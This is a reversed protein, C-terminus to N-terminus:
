WGPQELMFPLQHARVHSPTKPPWVAPRGWSLNEHYLVYGHMKTVSAELGCCRLDPILKWRWQPIWPHCIPLERPLQITVEKSSNLSYKTHWKKKSITLTNNQTLTLNTKPYTFLLQFLFAKTQLMVGSLIDYSMVTATFWSEIDQAHTQQIQYLWYWNILKNKM